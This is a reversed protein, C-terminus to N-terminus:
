IRSLSKNQHYLLHSYTLCDRATAISRSSLGPEVSRPHRSVAPSPSRLSLAVSFLHRKYKFPSQPFTRYSRVPFITVSKGHLGWGSCCEVACNLKSPMTRFFPKLQAAICRWLYIITWYLVRSVSKSM